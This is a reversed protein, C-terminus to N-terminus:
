VEPRKMRSLLNTKWVFQHVAVAGVHGAILILLLTQLIGHVEAAQASRTGWAVGGTVPLLFLIGYFALHAAKSLKALVEPEGEPPPPVGRGTRLSLRWMTLGLITSGTAFHAIAVFTLTYVGTEQGARFAKEVGDLALFMLVVLAVIVWHVVIQQRSYGTVAKAM